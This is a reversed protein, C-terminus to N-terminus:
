YGRAQRTNELNGKALSEKDIVYEALNVGKSIEAKYSSPMSSGNQRKTNKIIDGATYNNKKIESAYRIGFLHIMAVQGGEPANEYMESLKKGLEVITM